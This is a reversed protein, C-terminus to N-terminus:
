WEIEASGNKKLYRNTKSFPRSGFFGRSASLPSPHPSKIILHRTGDILAAKQQAFNGWLIFVVHEREESIKKIVADTFTEWGRGQHGGAEGAPVTLTSNLLLVGQKAWRELNGSEAIDRGVDAKIEKYINKLSPPIRVGDPVSFALGHAQNDGHYPDQGLIVVKVESIPTLNFANFILDEPPYIPPENILYDAEVEVCLKKFYDQTFEDKLLNLWSGEIPIKM